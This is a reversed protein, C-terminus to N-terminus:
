SRVWYDRYYDQEYDKERDKEKQDVPSEPERLPPSRAFPRDRSLFNSGPALNRGVDLEFSTRLASRRHWSDCAEAWLASCSLDM